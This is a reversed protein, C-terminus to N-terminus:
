LTQQEDRQDWEGVGCQRVKQPNRTDIILRILVIHDPQKQIFAPPKPISDVYADLSDGRNEPEIWQGNEEDRCRCGVCRSGTRWWSVVFAVLVTHGV